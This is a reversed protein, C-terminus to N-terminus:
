EASIKIELLDEFLEIYLLAKDAIVLALFYGASNYFLIYHQKGIFGFNRLSRKNVRRSGPSAPNFYFIVSRSRYM